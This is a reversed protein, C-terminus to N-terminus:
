FVLHESMYPGCIVRLRQQAQRSATFLAHSHCTPFVTHATISPIFVRHSHCTSCHSCGTHVVCTRVHKAACTQLGVFLAPLSSRTISSLVASFLTPWVGSQLDSDRVLFDFRLLGGKPGPPGILLLLALALLTSPQRLLLVCFPASLLAPLKWGCQVNDGELTLSEFPLPGRRAISATVSVSDMQATLLALPRGLPGVGFERGRALQADIQVRGGM